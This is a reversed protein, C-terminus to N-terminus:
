QKKDCRLDRIYRSVVLEKKGNNNTIEEFTFNYCVREDFYVNLSEQDDAYKMDQVEMDLSREITSRLSYDLSLVALKSLRVVAFTPLSTLLLLGILLKKM